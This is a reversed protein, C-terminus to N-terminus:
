TWIGPGRGRCQRKSPIAPNNRSTLLLTLPRNTDRAHHRLGEAINTAGTMRLLGIALNRLTAMVQPGSGTRVQSLDEGFTVDQGLAAQKRHVLPRPALCGVPSQQGPAATLDTIAYVAESRWKRSKPRRVKRTIQIAQAAYPFLIGADISVVKVTRKEIRGHRRDDQTDTIAVQTWPVQTLQRRLAPQNGKVTLLYHAGRQEVLYKAHIRQCHMADATVLVGLLEINDLLRSFLPIENTKLDVDIQGLVLGDAHTLASLLHRCRGGAVASGRVSKGDVAIVPFRESTTAVLAAWTGVILDLGDADIRNLTRRITSECPKQGTVGLKALEAPTAEATWEAIGVFSRAGAIVACAALALITCLRHRRGRLNRPDPVAQLARLLAAPAAPIDPFENEDFQDVVTLIRSSPM